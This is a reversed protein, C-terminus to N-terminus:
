DDHGATRRLFPSRAVVARWRKGFVYMPVGLLAFSVNLIALIRYTKIAGNAVFWGPVYFTALFAYISRLLSSIVFAESSSNSMTDLIYTACASAGFPVGISFLCSALVIEWVPASRAYLPGLILFGATSFIVGPILMILRFEPEYVGGNRRSMYKILWDVGYGSILSSLLAAGSLPLSLYSLTDPQLNYPPYLLIMGTILNSIIVWTIMAGYVVTCFIVSPFIALPFPRILAKFFNRDSVRGRWIRLHSTWPKKQETTAEIDIPEDKHLINNSPMPTLDLSARAEGTPTMLTEGSLDRERIITKETKKVEVKPRIYTTERLM